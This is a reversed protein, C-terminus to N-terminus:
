FKFDLNTYIYRGPENLLMVDGTAGSAVLTLDSYTNSTAYTEDFVNNVGLTFMFGKEVQHKVKMNMISWGDITQEGNDSDVLNWDRSGKFEVTAVSNNAYEYNLAVNARLPAIDALNKDTQGALAEDKQGRKYSASMDITLENTAYISASAEAGYIKADINVFQNATLGKQYYIYDSLKSYFGKVKASFLNQNTEYGFDTQMNTTQELTPTGLVVVKKFYLERADPVRSAKGFGIFLSNNSNFNYTTFINANLASYTRKEFADDVNTISTSDYRAGLKFDFNAYSKKLQTFLAMNKTTTEDLSVAKVLDTANNIYNGSWKRESADLGLNLAYSKVDFKTQLKAGEISSKMHNTTNMLPNMSSIRYETSMPHDVESFYYKANLNKYYKNINDFNYEISYIDSNDYIADMPTNPYLVNSSRNATYGLRLEQDQTLSIHAKTMFSDKRFADMQSYTDKYANAGVENNAVQQALTDGNGDKYQDSSETSASVLVRVLDNGGSVTAGVKTYNFSGHAFNLEAETQKTPAKTTIKVGGSMNGFNTVDYPGEVVEINEIQSALIHSVPPDMRNPCAGKVKTGDIEVSINDRKQGRIIIDNSIGSRRSMDISPVNTSLADALDASTQAKQSVETLMTSEVTIPALETQSASLLAVSVFSLPILKTM